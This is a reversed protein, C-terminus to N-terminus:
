HATNRRRITGEVSGFIKGLPVIASRAEWVRTKLRCKRVKQSCIVQWSNRDALCPVDM